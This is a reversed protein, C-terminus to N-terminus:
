KERLRARGADTIKYRVGNDVSAVSVVQHKAELRILSEDIRSSPIAEDVATNVACFLFHSSVLKGGVDDLQQLIERELNM